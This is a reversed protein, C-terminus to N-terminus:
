ARGERGPAGTRGRRPRGRRATPGVPAPGTRAGHGERPGTAPGRTRPGPRTAHARVRDDDRAPTRAAPTAADGHAVEDSRQGLARAVANSGRDRRTASRAPQAARDAGTTPPGEARRPHRRASGQWGVGHHGRTRARRRREASPRPTTARPSTRSRRRAHARRDGGEVGLPVEHGARWRMPCRHPLPQRGRPHRGEHERHETEDAAGDTAAVGRRHDQGDRVAPNSNTSTRLSGSERQARRPPVVRGARPGRRHRRHAARPTPEGRTRSQGREDPARAPRRWRGPQMSAARRPPVRSRLGTRPPCRVRRARTTRGSAHHACVRSTPRGPHNRPPATTPVGPVTSGRQHGRRVSGTKGVRRRRPRPGVVKAVENATHGGSGPHTLRQVPQPHRVDEDTRPREPGIVGPAAVIGSQGDGPALAEDLAVAPRSRPTAPSAAVPRRGHDRGPQGSRRNRQAPKATRVWSARLLRIRAIRAPPLYM